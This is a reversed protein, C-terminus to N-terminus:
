CDEMLKQKLDLEFAQIEELCKDLNAFIVDQNLDEPIEATSTRFPSRWKWEDKSKKTPYFENIRDCTMLFEETANQSSIAFQIYVSDRYIDISFHM